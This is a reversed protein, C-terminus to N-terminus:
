IRLRRRHAPEPWGHGPLRQGHLEAPAAVPGLAGVHHQLPQKAVALLGSTAATPPPLLLWADRLYKPATTHVLGPPRLGVPYAPRRQPRQPAPQHWLLCQPGVPAPLADAAVHALLPDPRPRPDNPLPAPARRPRRV